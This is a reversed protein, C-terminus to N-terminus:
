NIEYKGRIINLRITFLEQLSKLMAGFQSDGVLGKGPDKPDKWDAISIDTRNYGLLRALVLLEPDFGWGMITQRSFIDQAAARTYAKFGCQSDSVKQWIVLQILNNSLWSGLKRQWSNHVKSLDRVGIVTDVDGDQLAELAVGLHKLPTALDADMFVVYEGKAALMGARIDRGKGVRAGPKVHQSHKFQLLGKGVLEITNDPSDATVVVVETSQLMNNEKLWNRLTKLNDEIIDAENYAGMVISIQPKNM